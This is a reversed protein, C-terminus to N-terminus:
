PREIQPVVTTPDMRVIRSSGKETRLEVGIRPFAAGPYLVIRREDGTLLIGGPLELKRAFGPETSHLWLTNQKPSVVIELLDHRREARNVAANLFSAVSGTAQSLRLADLGSTLLPVSLGAMIGIITVVITMELLTVGRQRRKPAM